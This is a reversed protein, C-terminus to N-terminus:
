SENLIELRNKIKNLMYEIKLNEQSYKRANQQLKVLEENSINNVFQVLEDVDSAVFGNYNHIVYFYEVCQNVSESRRLTLVPKGYLLAETVSLGVWGMQIYMDAIAFLEDKTKRSFIAGFDYVNDFPEFDPKLTGDGIIIFGFRKPDVKEIFDLLLDSRRQAKTFRACYIFNVKTAIKYKKKFDEKQDDLITIDLSNITNNLSIITKNGLSQQLIEKEKDTYVWIENAFLHFIKKTIPYKKEEKLYNRVSIGHGWLVIKKGHIWKTFLLFWTSISRIEGPLVLIRYKKNLLPFFSYIIFIKLFNWSKLKRISQTDKSQQGYIYLDADLTKILEQFLFERYHPIIPQLFAIKKAKPNDLELSM